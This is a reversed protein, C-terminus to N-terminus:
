ECWVPWDLAGFLRQQGVDSTNENRFVDSALSFLFVIGGMKLSGKAGFLDIGPMM